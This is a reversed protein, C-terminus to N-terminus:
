DIEESTLPLGGSSMLRRMSALMGRGKVAPRNTACAITAGGLLDAHSIHHAPSPTPAPVRIHFRAISGDAQRVDVHQCITQESAALNEINPAKTPEITQHAILPAKRGALVERALEQRLSHDRRVEPLFDDDLRIPFNLGAELDEDSLAELEQLLVQINTELQTINNMPKVMSSSPRRYRLRRFSKSSRKCFEFLKAHAPSDLHNLIATTQVAIGADTM